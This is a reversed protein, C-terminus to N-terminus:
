QHRLKTTKHILFAVCTGSGGGHTNTTQFVIDFTIYAFMGQVQKGQESVGYSLVDGKDLLSVFRFEVVVQALNAVKGTYNERRKVLAYGKRGRKGGIEYARSFSSCFARAIVVADTRRCRSSHTM